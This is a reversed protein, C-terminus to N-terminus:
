SSHAHLNRELRSVAQAPVPVPRRTSPAPTRPSSAGPSSAGLANVLPVLTHRDAITWGAGHALARLTDDPEFAVPHGVAGLLVRDSASNGVALATGLGAGLRAALTCLLEAKVEPVAPLTLFRHTYTGDPGTALRMGFRHAIGLEGAMRDIMEQPSGSLLVPTFRRRRLSEVLPVTSALLRHRVKRWAAHSARVADEHRVGEMARAYAASARGTTDRFRAGAARHAGMTDRVHRVAVPDVLGSSRLEDLLSFGLTGEYLTGDVDLAAINM